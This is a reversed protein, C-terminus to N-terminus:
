IDFDAMNNFGLIELYNILLPKSVDDIFIIQHPFISKKHDYLVIMDNGVAFYSIALSKEVIQKKAEGLQREYCFQNGDFSYVAVFPLFEQELSQFSRVTQFHSAKAIYKKFIARGIFTDKLLFGSTIVIIFVACGLLFGNDRYPINQLYNNLYFFGKYLYYILAVLMTFKVMLYVPLSYGRKVNQLFLIANQQSLRQFEQRALHIKEATVTCQIKLTPNEM